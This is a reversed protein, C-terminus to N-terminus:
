RADGSLARVQETHAEAYALALTSGWSGGFVLWKDIALHQRLKEMDEVLDWTTNEQESGIHPPPSTPDTLGVARIHLLSSFSLSLSPPPRVELCAFPTSQGSGRQDFLVIKYAEPDFYQRNIHTQPPPCSM